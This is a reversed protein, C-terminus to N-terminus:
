KEKIFLEHFVNIRAQEGNGTDSWIKSVWEAFQEETEDPQVPLCNRKCERQLWEIDLEFVNEDAM